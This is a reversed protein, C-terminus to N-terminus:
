VIIWDAGKESCSTRVTCRYQKANKSFFMIDSAYRSMLDDPHYHLTVTQALGDARTRSLAGNLRICDEAVALQHELHKESFKRRIFSLQMKEIQEHALCASDTEATNKGETTLWVAFDAFFVSPKIHLPRLLALFWPVARGQNYFINCAHSLEAAKQINEANFTPTSQVTYPPQHQWILGLEGARDGLDTGPLVSLCFLELNNPYLALAFDVSERFGSLSDGPLGYILDFGFIAGAENLFGVNRTFLKRDLSRHVLGLVNEHISQLGIQIACPISAFAKSLQRDILEARGEFYFFMGPAKQRIMSIMDLARKKGANYTPDLVFVQSIKKRAFLELEKEIRAEPFYFVKKEGKSEYCYSCRYPCGRALEWLAGGYVSPDIDGDLWPSVLTAPNCAPASVVPRPEAGSPYIYPPFVVNDGSPRNWLRSILEPVAEEGAGAVCYDFTGSTFPAASIEPGGAICIIEPHNQRIIRASEELIKRNWVYVSFCIFAPLAGSLIHDAVTEATISDEKSFASVAVRFREATVPNHRIAAAICAAALPMAQPSTEVLVTTCIVLPLM